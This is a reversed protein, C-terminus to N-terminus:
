YCSNTMCNSRTAADKGGMRSHKPRRTDECVSDGHAGVARTRGMGSASPRSLKFGGPHSSSPRQSVARPWTFKNKRRAMMEEGYDASGNGKSPVVHDAVIEDPLEATLDFVPEARLYLGGSIDSRHLPRVALSPSAWSRVVLMFKSFIWPSGKEAKQIDAMSSFLIRTLGVDVNSITFDKDPRWVRTLTTKVTHLAPPLGVLHGILSREERIVGAAIDDDNFQMAVAM